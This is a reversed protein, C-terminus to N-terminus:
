ALQGDPTDDDDLEIEDDEIAAMEAYQTALLQHRYALYARRHTEYLNGADHADAAQLHQRAAAQFHQAALAHCHTISVFDDDLFEENDNEILTDTPLDLSSNNVSEQALEQVSDQPTDQTM